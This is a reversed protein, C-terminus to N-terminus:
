VCSVQDADSNKPLFFALNDSVNRAAEILRSIPAPQLMTELDYVETQQYNPGGWPPSLYVVDAKLGHCLHFFDGIIFQIRDVVGYVEANHRAMYIKEPDIDIAIVPILILYIFLM